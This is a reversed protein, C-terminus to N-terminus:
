STMRLKKIMGSLMKQEVEIEKLLEDIDMAYLDRSLILQTELEALSGQAIHLFQVFDKRTSRGRGEAINSPISVSARRLQSVLGFLEDKPLKGTLQYVLKAIELGKQWIVLDRFSTIFPNKNEMSFAALM